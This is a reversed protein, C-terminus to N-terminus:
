DSELFIEAAIEELMLAVAQARASRRVASLSAIVLPLGPVPDEIPITVVRRGDHTLDHRPRQNLLAFGLGDAVLARVTEYTGSRHRIEPSIGASALIGLFYDRSFPLDLLIFGEDALEALRVTAHDALPHAAPLVVHAPVRAVVEREVEQGLALDYGVHMEVRGARLAERAQEADVEEVLIQLDPHRERARALLAPVLFPALTVFCTIRVPGRVQNDVGRAADLAGDIGVLLARADGLLQVGAPALALGKSRHRIFLQVGIQAELQGIAASVASQAVFLERAAETMSLKEAALVFYRLQALTIEPRRAM